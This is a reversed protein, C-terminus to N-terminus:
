VNDMLLRDGEKILVVDNKLIKSKIKKNGKFEIKNILSVEKVAIELDIFSEYKETIYIQVDSFLGLSWLGEIATKIEEGTRIYTGKNDYYGNSNNDVFPEGLDYKNNLNIDNYKEKPYLGTNIFLINEKISNLGSINIDGIFIDQLFANSLLLLFLLKTLLKNM